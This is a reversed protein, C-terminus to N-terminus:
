EFFLFLKLEFNSIICVVSFHMYVLFRHLNSAVKSKCSNNNPYVQHHQLTFKGETAMKRRQKARAELRSPSIPRRKRYPTFLRM